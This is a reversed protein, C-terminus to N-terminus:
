RRPKDLTDLPLRHVLLSPAKLNFSLIRRNLEHARRRWDDMSEAALRPLEAALKGREADLDKAEEVWAPAFGNVRLLHNAMRLEPPEFPDESLDLPRGKGPLNDFVGEEMAERIKNEAVVRCLDM